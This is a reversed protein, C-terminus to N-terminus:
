LIRTYLQKDFKTFFRRFSLFLAQKQNFADLFYLKRKLGPYGDPFDEM